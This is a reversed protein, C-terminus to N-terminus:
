HNTMVELGASQTAGITVRGDRDSCERAVGRMSREELTRCASCGPLDLIKMKIKIALSLVIVHNRGVSVLRLTDRAGRRHGLNLILGRNFLQRMDKYNLPVYLRVGRAPPNQRRLCHNCKTHAGATKVEVKLEIVDAQV